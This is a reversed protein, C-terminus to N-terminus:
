AARSRRPRAEPAARELPVALARRRRRRWLLLGAAALVGAVVLWTLGQDLLWAGVGSLAGSGVLVLVLGGCCVVKAVVLGVMGFRPKPDDM